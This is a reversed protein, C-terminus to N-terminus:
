YPKIMVPLESYGRILNSRVRTPKELVEVKFRPVIEEWLVRLQMEALRNGMCRHIGYGFSLHSRANKRDIIFQDANEFHSEDRNGSIYWMIVKDGKKILKDQIKVDELATRRMHPLPTQWRIIEPVMNKILSPDDILKQYQDPFQNLALLGGTISNRTTDNGGVILLVVNGLFELPPMNQTAEGHALMSILDNNPAMDAREKWLGQFVNLCDMLAERRHKASDVVGAMRGGSAVDSWFTLKSREEFPFDLLTALMQTTLEISVKDVWNFEEGVPLSELINIVRERITSELIALSKPAVIPSVVKRQEHHKPQDMSIFMPLEFDDPQDFITIDRDSSFVEANSDVALIDKYRTLSWYAGYRSEPCYHVPEEKRMREFYPWHTDTRFMEADSMDFKDLPLSAAQQTAFALADDDHLLNNM